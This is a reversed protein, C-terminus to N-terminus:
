RSWFRRRPRPAETALSRRAMEAFDEIAPTALFPHSLEDPGLRNGQLEGQNLLEFLRKHRAAEAARTKDSHGGDM